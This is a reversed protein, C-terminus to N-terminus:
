DMITDCFVSADQYNDDDEDSSDNENGDDDKPNDDDQSLSNDKIIIDAIFSPLQEGVFWIFDYKDDNITWGSAQPSLSTPHQLHANRWFKTVYRIRLLHQYLEAKCPPLSSPDFNRFKKEFNDDSKKSRYTNSFLHFRVENVNWSDRAGYIHCIFKELIRFTEDLLEEDDTIINQCALQYEESQELLKFPRLKGKRFFAPTYDCGTLAHFCPLAKSLSNGLIEHVQNVSIFREHNGVGLNVWIKLSANLHHMNGLLIILIDTDSCRIVVEGDVNIQCIHYIIRSDAEEHEECSLSDEVIKIVKNSEVRYSYCKNFNVYIIKDGIIPDM